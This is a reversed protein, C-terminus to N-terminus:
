APEQKSGPKLKYTLITRAIIFGLLASLLYQWNAQLLLYFSFLVIVTRLLFSVASLLYPRGSGTIKQV